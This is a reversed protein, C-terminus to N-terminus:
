TSGTSHGASPAQQNAHPSSSLNNPNISTSHSSHETAREPSQAPSDNANDEEDSDLIVRRSPM